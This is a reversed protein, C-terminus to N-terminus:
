EFDDPDMQQLVTKLGGSGDIQGEDIPLDNISQQTSQRGADTQSQDANSDSSGLNQLQRYAEQYILSRLLRKMGRDGWRRAV